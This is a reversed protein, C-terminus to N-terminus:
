QMPVAYVKGWYPAENTDDVATVYMTGGDESFTLNPATTSPVELAKVFDGEEDVAVIRGKSYQGIYLNGDPGFELGDPYAGAGSEPDVMGVRVFLRRDSLTGDEAVTFSIVRGAESEAVYLRSGDPSLAVGNAYHLDNAVETIKGDADMHYVKGVIPASEWPGSASFYVGGRGDTTFDNNGLFPQQVSDQDIMEITDGSMSIHAIQSSDYCTVVLDGKYPYVASPGCGDQKWVESNDSGDWKMVTNGGYEVYYLTGDIVIPGEPFGSKANIVEAAQACTGVYVLGAALTITRLNM